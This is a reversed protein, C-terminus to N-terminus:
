NFDGVKVKSLIHLYLAIFKIKSQIMRQNNALVDNDMSKDKEERHEKEARGKVRRRMYM